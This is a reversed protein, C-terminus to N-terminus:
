PCARETRCADNLARLLQDLQIPKTLCAVFGADRYHHPNEPVHGTVAIGPVHYRRSLERMLAVGDRGPLGVDTVVVDPTQESARSLASDYCEATRVDFDPSLLRALMDRTDAHDEVLLIRCGASRAHGTDTSAM